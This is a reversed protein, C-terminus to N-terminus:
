WPLDHLLASVAFTLLNRWFSCGALKTEHLTMGLVLIKIAAFGSQKHRGITGLGEQCLTAKAADLTFVRQLLRARPFQAVYM